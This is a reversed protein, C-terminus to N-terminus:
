PDHRHLVMKIKHRGTQLVEGSAIPPAPVISNGVM